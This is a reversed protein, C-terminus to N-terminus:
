GHSVDKPQDPALGAVKPDTANKAHGFNLAISNIVRYAIAYSRPSGQDPPPLVMAVIAALAVAGTVYPAVSTPLLATLQDM